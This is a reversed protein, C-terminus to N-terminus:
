LTQNTLQTVVHQHICTNYALVAVYIYWRCWMSLCEPTMSTSSYYWHASILFSPLLSFNYRLCFEILMWKSLSKWFIITLLTRNCASNLVHVRLSYTGPFRRSSLTCKETADNVTLLLVPKLSSKIINIVHSMHQHFMEFKWATGDM